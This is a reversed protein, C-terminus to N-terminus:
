PYDMKKRINIPSTLSGDSSDSVSKRKHTQKHFKFLKKPTLNNTEFDFDPDDSTDDFSMENEPEETYNYVKTSQPKKPRLTRKKSKSQLSYALRKKNPQVNNSKIDFNHDDIIESQCKEPVEDVAMEIQSEECVEENVTQGEEEPLTVKSHKLTKTEPLCHRVLSPGIINLHIDSLPLEYFKQHTAITHRLFKPMHKKLEDNCQSHTAWFHRFGNATLHSPKKLKM